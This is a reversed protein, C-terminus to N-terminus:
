AVYYSVYERCLPLNRIHDSRLSYPKSYVEEHNAHVNELHRGDSNSDTKVEKSKRELITVAIDVIEQSGNKSKKVPERLGCKEFEKRREEKEAKAMKFVKTEVDMKKKCVREFKRNSLDSTSKERNNKENDDDRTCDSKDVLILATSTSEDIKNDKLRNTERIVVKSRSRRRDELKSNNFNDGLEKKLRSIAIPIRSRMSKETKNSLKLLNSITSHIKSFSSTRDSNVEEIKNKELQYLKDKLDNNSKSNKGENNTTQSNSWRKSQKMVSSIFIAGVKELDKRQIDAKDNEKEKRVSRSLSYGSINKIPSRENINKKLKKSADSNDDDFSFVTNIEMKSEINEKQINEKRQSYSGASKPLVRSKTKNNENNFNEKEIFCKNGQNKKAALNNEDLKISNKNVYRKAMNDRYNMRDRDASKSNGKRRDSRRETKNNTERNVDQHNFNEKLSEVNEQKNLTFDNKEQNINEFKNKINENFNDFMDSISDIDVARDISKKIKENLDKLMENNSENNNNVFSFDTRIKIDDTIDNFAPKTSFNEKKKQPSRTTSPIRRKRKNNDNKLYNLGDPSHSLRTTSTSENSNKYSDFVKKRTENEERKNKRNIAKKLFYNSLDSDVIVKENSSLDDMHDQSRLLTNEFDAINREWQEIKENIERNMTNSREELFEKTKIKRSSTKNTSSVNGRTNSKKQFEERNTEQKEDFVKRINKSVPDCRPTKRECYSQNQDKKQQISSSPSIADCGTDSLEVIKGVDQYVDMPFIPHANDMFFYFPNESFANM